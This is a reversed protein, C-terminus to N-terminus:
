QVRWQSGCSRAGLSRREAWASGGGSGGGTSVVLICGMGRAIGKLVRDM